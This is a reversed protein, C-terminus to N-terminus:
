IVLESEFGKQESVEGLTSNFSFGEGPKIIIGNYKAAGVKINHIRAQSSGSFNSEGRGILTTIGLENVRSLTIAPEILEVPLNVEKKGNIIADIVLKKSINIDLNLGYESPVFEQAKGDILVFKANIPQTNISLALYTLYEDIKESSLRLDEKGSYDRVYSELWNKITESPLVKNDNQIHLVINNLPLSSIKEAFNEISVKEIEEPPDTLYFVSGFYFGGLVIIGAILLRSVFTLFSKSFLM